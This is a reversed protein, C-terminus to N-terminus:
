ALVPVQTKQLPFCVRSSSSSLPDKASAQSVALRGSLLCFKFKDAEHTILGEFAPLYGKHSSFNVRTQGSLFDLM